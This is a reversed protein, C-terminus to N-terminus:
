YRYCCTIKVLKVMVQVIDYFCLAMQLTVVKDVLDCSLMLLYSLVKVRERSFKKLPIIWRGNKSSDIIMKLSILIVQSNILWCYLAQDSQVSTSAPSARYLHCFSIEKLKLLNLTLIYPLLLM